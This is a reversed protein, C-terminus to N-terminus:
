TSIASHLESLYRTTDHVMFDDGFYTIPQQVQRPVVETQMLIFYFTLTVMSSSAGLLDIKLGISDVSMTWCMKHHSLCFLNEWQLHWPVMTSFHWKLIKKIKRKTKNIKTKGLMKTTVLFPPFFPLPWICSSFEWFQWEHVYVLYFWCMRTQHM